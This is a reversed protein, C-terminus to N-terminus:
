PTYTGSLFKIGGGMAEATGTLFTAPSYEGSFFIAAASIGEQILPALVITPPPPYVGLSSYGSDPSRPTYVRQFPQFIKVKM